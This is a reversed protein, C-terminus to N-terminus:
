KGSSEARGGEDAVLEGEVRGREAAERNAESMVFVM